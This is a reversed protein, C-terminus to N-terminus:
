LNLGIAKQFEEEYGEEKIIIKGFELALKTYVSIPYKCEFPLSNFIPDGNEHIESLLKLSIKGLTPAQKGERYLGFAKDANDKYLDSILWEHKLSKSVLHAFPINKDSGPLTLGNEFLMKLQYPTFLGMVKRAGTLQDNVM